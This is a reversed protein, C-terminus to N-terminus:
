TVGDVAVVTGVASGVNVVMLGDHAVFNDDPRGQQLAPLLELHIRLDEALIPQSPLGLKCLSKGTRRLLTPHMIPVSTLTPFLPHVPHVTCIRRAGDLLFSQEDEENM